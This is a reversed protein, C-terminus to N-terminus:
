ARGRRRSVMRERRHELGQAARARARDRDAPKRRCQSVCDARRRPDARGGRRLATGSRAHLSRRPGRAVALTEKMMAHARAADGELALALTTFFRACAAADHNGYQSAMAQHTKAEYLALGAQAHARSEALAGRGLATAWLAHHAQLRLGADGSKEALALLRVGLRWANEVESRGWRFLWQGWLAPFMDARAGLRDCLAEARAYADHVESAGFGRTAMFAAGMAVHLAVEVKTREVEDAVHGVADLAHQLHGIAETNASRRLAKAAARQHHPIARAPDNGREFHTPSRPPSRTRFPRGHAKWGAASARM